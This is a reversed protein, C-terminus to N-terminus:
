RGLRDDVAGAAQKVVAYHRPMVSRRYGPRPSVLWRLTEVSGLQDVRSILKPLDESQSTHARRASRQHGAIEANV